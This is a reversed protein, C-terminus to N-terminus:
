QREADTTVVQVIQGPRQGQVSARNRQLRFGVLGVVEQSIVKRAKAVIRFGDLSVALSNLPGGLVVNVAVPKALHEETFAPGLFGQSHKLRRIFQGRVVGCGVARQPPNIPPDFFLIKSKRLKLLGNTDIRAEGLRIIIKRLIIGSLFLHAFSPLKGVGKLPLRSHGPPGRTLVRIKPGPFLGSTRRALRRSSATLRKCSWCMRPILDPAARRLELRCSRRASSTQAGISIPFCKSPTTLLPGRKPAM